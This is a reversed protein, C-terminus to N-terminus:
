MLLCLHDENFDRFIKKTGLFSYTGTTLRWMLDYAILSGDVLVLAM